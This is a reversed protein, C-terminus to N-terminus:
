FEYDLIKTDLQALGKQKTYEHVQDTKRAVALSIIYNSKRGEILKNSKLIKIAEESVRNYKRKSHCRAM